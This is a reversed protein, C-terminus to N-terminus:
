TVALYKWLPKRWGLLIVNPVIYHYKNCILSQQLYRLYYVVRLTKVIANDEFTEAQSTL